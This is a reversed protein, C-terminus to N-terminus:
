GLDYESWAEEFAIIAESSANCHYLHSLWVERDADDGPAFKDRKADSALDGVPDSREIQTMLWTHFGVKHKNSNM